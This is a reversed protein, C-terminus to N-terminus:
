GTSSRSETTNETHRSQIYGNVQNRQQESLFIGMKTRRWLVDEGTRVFENDILYDLEAATLQEGFDMGLDTISQAEGLFLIARSGYSAALRQASTTTLFPYKQLLYEIYKALPMGIDGGPVFSTKTWTPKMKPYCIELAASAKESLKRYTTLKGGFVSLLPAGKLISLDITYDRTLAQPSTSEDDCLPRVGSYSWIIDESSSQRVFYDNVTTCLYDIEEQTVTVNDTSGTHIADTTGILSFQNLYPLVFVIRGDENQLIYASDDENLKPVVIHSGRILQIQHPSPQNLVNTFLSEVWPGAANVLGRARYSIRKGTQTDQTSIHWIGDECEAKTCQTYTCIHGGLEKCHVANLVVLRADDVWCDFYEFGKRIEDKLPSQQPIFRLFRSKPLIERKGLFDYLLLGIRILWAPRLHERHPLVFRLPKVLHPAKVLLIERENLAQRVLNFEYHELYRLGGHILKSSASSTASALDKKELLLTKLGRGQLDLAIGVGNIGGGIIAIDYIIKGM